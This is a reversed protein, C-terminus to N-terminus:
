VSQWRALYKQHEPQNLWKAMEELFDRLVANARDADTVSTQVMVKFLVPWTPRGRMQWHIRAGLDLRDYLVHNGLQYWYGVVIRETGKEWTVLKASVTFEASVKLNENTETLQRFGAAAYCNMPSHYVGDLPKLFMASHLAVTQGLPGRYTRNVITAAGTAAAIKPDLKADTGEWDGLRYPLDRLSWDPEEVQSPDAANTLWRDVGYAGLVLAAVLYLRAAVANV